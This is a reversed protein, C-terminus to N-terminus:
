VPNPLDFVSVSRENLYPTRWSHGLDLLYGSLRGLHLATFARLTPTHHTVLLVGTSQDQHRLSFSIEKRAVVAQCSRNIFPDPRSNLSNRSRSSPRGCQPCNLLCASGDGRASSQVCSFAMRKWFNFISRRSSWSERWLPDIPDPLFRGPQSAM